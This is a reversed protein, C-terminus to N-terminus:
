AVLNTLDFEWKSRIGCVRVTNIIYWNKCKIIYNGSVEINWALIIIVTAFVSEVYFMGKNGLVVDANVRIGTLFV